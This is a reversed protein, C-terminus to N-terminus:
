FETADLASKMKESIYLGPAGFPFYALVRCTMQLITPEDNLLYVINKVKNSQQDGM